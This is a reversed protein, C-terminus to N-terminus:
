PGPRTLPPGQSLCWSGALLQSQGPFLEAERMPGPAAPELCCEFSHAPFSLFLFCTRKSDSASEAAPGKELHTLGAAPEVGLGRQPGALWGFGSGSVFAPSSPTPSAPVTDRGKFLQGPQRVAPGQGGLAWSTQNLPTHGQWLKISGAGPNPSDTPRPYHKRVLPM